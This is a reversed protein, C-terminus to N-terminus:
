AQNQYKETEQQDYLKAMYNCYIEKQYYIGHGCKLM